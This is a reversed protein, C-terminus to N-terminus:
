LKRYASGCRGFARKTGMAEAKTFWLWKRVQFQM